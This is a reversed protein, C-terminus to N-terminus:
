AADDGPRIPRSLLRLPERHDLRPPQDLIAQLEDCCRELTDITRSCSLLQGIDGFSVAAPIANLQLQQLDSAQQCADVARRLLQRLHPDNM